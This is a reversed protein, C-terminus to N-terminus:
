PIRNQCRTCIKMGANRWGWQPSCGFMKCRLTKTGPGAKSWFIADWIFFAVVAAGLLGILVLFEM